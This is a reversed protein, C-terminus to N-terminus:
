KSKNEVKHICLKLELIEGRLLNHPILMFNDQPTQFSVELIRKVEPSEYTMKHGDVIYSLRCTFRGVEPAPPAICSATVYVGCPERFCQVAFCLRMESDRLIVMKDSINLQASFSSGFSFQKRYFSGMGGKLHTLAYHVFLDKYSCTHSCDQAPCSCQSFICEKEHTSDKGYSLKNSCGFEANRCPVFASEIVSEMARCRIHGVPLDCAPCKNSLKPCCSSCALHGNECQFVPITLPECCVPCDLFDKDLILSGTKDETRQKKQLHNTSSSEM